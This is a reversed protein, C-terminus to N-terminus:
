GARSIVLAMWNRLEIEHLNRDLITENLQYKRILEANDNQAQLVDFDDAAEEATLRDQGIRHALNATESFSNGDSHRLDSAIHKFELEPHYQVGWFCIKETEIVLAQVSTNNNGALVVAEDPLNVSMDRHMCLADFQKPKDKFFPHMVGNEGLTIKSAIALEAGKPNATASGGLVAIALQMGYCSGLVPKQSELAMAMVARAPTAAEDSASWPVASGTFVFGDYIDSQLRSIDFGSFHPRCIEFISGSGFQELKDIYNEAAGLPTGCSDFATLAETNGDVVLIRAM